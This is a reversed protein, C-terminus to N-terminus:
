KACHLISPTRPPPPTQSTGVRFKRPGPSCMDPVFAHVPIAPGFPRISLNHRQHLAHFSIVLAVPLQYHLPATEVGGPCSHVQLVLPSVEHINDNMAFGCPPMNYNLIPESLSDQSAIVAILSLCLTMACHKLIMFSNYANNQKRTEIFCSPSHVTFFLVMSHFIAKSCQLREQCGEVPQIRYKM